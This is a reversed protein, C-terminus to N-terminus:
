FGYHVDSYEAFEYAGVHVRPKQLEQILGASLLRQGEFEGKGLHFRLWNAFSSISTSMGGAATVSVPWLESRRRADAEMAYPVAADVAAALEEVTFTVNMHLKDTLARTFEAWSQGSVREAVM